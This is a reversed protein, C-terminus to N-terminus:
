TVSHSYIGVHDSKAPYCMRDKTGLNYKPICDERRLPAECHLQWLSAETGLHLKPVLISSVLISSESPVLCTVPMMSGAGVLDWRPGSAVAPSEAEFFQRAIEGLSRSAIHDHPGCTPCM